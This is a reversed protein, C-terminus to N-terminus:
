WEIVVVNLMMEGVRVCVSDAIDWVSGGLLGIQALILKNRLVRFLWVRWRWLMKGYCSIHTKLDGYLGILSLMHLCFATTRMSGTSYVCNIEWGCIRSFGRWRISILILVGNNFHRIPRICIAGCHIGAIKKDETLANETSFIEIKFSFRRLVM